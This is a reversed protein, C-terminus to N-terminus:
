LRVSPSQQSTPPISSRFAVNPRPQSRLQRRDHGHPRSHPRGPETRFPCHSRLGWYETMGEYVWLLDDQMPVNFNPTWLDAPRRFKGNWSHTYEHALLDRDDVSGAWDTFYSAPLRGRQIITSLDSAVSKTASCIFSTTTATTSALDYLKEAERILNRHLEIQEPTIAISAPTDGFLDLYSRIPHAQRCTSASSTFEPMFRLISWRKLIRKRSSSLIKRKANSCRARLCFALRGAVKRQSFSIRRAFHGAPYLVWWTGLWTRLKPPSLLGGMGAACPRSFSFIWRWPNSAVRFSSTSRSSM